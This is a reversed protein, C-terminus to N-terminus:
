TILGGSGARLGAERVRNVLIDRKEMGFRKMTGYYLRDCAATVLGAGILPAVLLGARTTATRMLAM